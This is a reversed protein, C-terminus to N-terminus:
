RQQGLEDLRRKTEAHADVEAQYLRSLHDREGMAQVAAKQWRESSEHAQRVEVLLDSLPGMAHPASM